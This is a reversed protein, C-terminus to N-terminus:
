PVTDSKQLNCDRCLIQGNSPSGDGGTSRPIIHDRERQIGPPRIGKTSKQGPIVERGCIECANIGGNKGANEADILKKGRATFPQGARVGGASGKPSGEIKEVM